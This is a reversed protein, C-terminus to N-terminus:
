RNFVILGSLKASRVEKPFFLGVLMIIKILAELKERKAPGEQSFADIMLLQGLKQDLSMSAYVSDVWQGQRESDEGALLPDPILDARTSEQAIAWSFSFSICILLLIRNMYNQPRTFFYVKPCFAIIGVKM